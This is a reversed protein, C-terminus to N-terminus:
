ALRGVPRFCEGAKVRFGLGALAEQRDEAPNKRRMEPIGLSAHAERVSGAAGHFSSFSSLQHRHTIFITGQHGVRGKGKGMLVPVLDKERDEPSNGTKVSTQILRRIRGRLRGYLSGEHSAPYREPTSAPRQGAGRHSGTSGSIAAAFIDVHRHDTRCTPRATGM